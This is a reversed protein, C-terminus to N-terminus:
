RSSADLLSIPFDTLTTPGFPPHPEVQPARAQSAMGGDVNFVQGTVYEAEHSALFLAASAVDDPTGQRGWPIQTHQGGSAASWDVAEHEVLISGPRITNARIKWPALDVAIARTFSEMAGKVSDYPVHERHARAAGHSSINVISGGLQAAALKRAFRQCAGVFMTTNAAFFAQWNTPDISLFPGFCDDSIRTYANNVLTDIQGFRAEGEVFAREIEALSTLDAQVALAEAGCESLADDVRQAAEANIDAIVVAAGEDAFREAIAKGINNGSGTVLAVRGQLRGTPTSSSTPQM